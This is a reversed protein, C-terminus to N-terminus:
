RKKLRSPAPTLSAPQICRHQCSQRAIAIAIAWNVRLYPHIQGFGSKTPSQSSKWFFMAAFFM